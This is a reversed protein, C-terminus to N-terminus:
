EICLENMIRERKLLLNKRVMMMLLFIIQKNDKMNELSICSRYINFNHKMIRVNIIFILKQKWLLTM